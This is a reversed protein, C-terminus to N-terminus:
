SSTKLLSFPELVSVLEQNRQGCACSKMLHNKIRAAMWFLSWSLAAPTLQSLDESNEQHCLRFLCVRVSFLSDTTWAEM